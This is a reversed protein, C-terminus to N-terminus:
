SAVDNLDDFLQDQEKNVDEKQGDDKSTGDSGKKEDEFEDKDGLNLQAKNPKNQGTVKGILTKIKKWLEGITDGTLM